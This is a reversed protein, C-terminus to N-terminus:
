VGPAGALFAALVAALLLRYVVFPLFSARRLWRMLAGIAAFACVFALAAAVAADAQLAADGARVLDRVALVGAAATTPISLLLSFRAAEARRLGLVLAATMTVGSRSTGPVLALVQALGILVAGRWTLDAVTAAADDRGRDAAWLLIGFLATTATIVVPSRWDTAVADHLAAGAVVVPITAVIVRGTLRAEGGPRRRVIDLVGVAMAAVDGRFYLAVAALTGIHMAVDVALGQDPWGTLAPILILHASSSIPLFETVGQVAALVILQWISPDASVAADM